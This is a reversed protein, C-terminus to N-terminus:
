GPAGDCERCDLFVNRHNVQGASLEQRLAIGICVRSCKRCASTFPRRVQELQETNMALVELESESEYETLEMKGGFADRVKTAHFVRIAREASRLDHYAVVVVGHSQHFRLVIGECSAITSFFSILTSQSACRPM